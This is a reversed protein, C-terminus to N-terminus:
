NQLTEKTIRMKQTLATIKKRFDEAIEASTPQNEAPHVSKGVCNEVTTKLTPLLRYYLRQKGKRKEPTDLINRHEDQIEILSKKNLEETATTIARKSSGTKKSLQSSSIWDREKRGLTSNKDAWGLTQRIVVLLVKLEALKLDKLYEDFVVNPVPTTNSVSEM